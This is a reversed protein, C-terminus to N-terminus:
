KGALSSSSTNGDQQPTTMLWEAALDPNNNNRELATQAQQRNFGMDVLRSVLVEQRPVRQQQQQQQQLQQQQQQQQQQLLLQTNITISYCCFSFHLSVVKSDTLLAISYVCLELSLV